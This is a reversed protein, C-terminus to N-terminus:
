IGYKMIEKFLNLKDEDDGGILVDLHYETQQIGDFIWAFKELDEPSV